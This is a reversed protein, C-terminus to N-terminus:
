KKEKFEFCGCYKCGVADMNEYSDFHRYYSHGCECIRDDGYNPNYSYTTIIEKKELYPENVKNKLILWGKKILDDISLDNYPLAYGKSRLYDVSQIYGVVRSANMHIEAVNVKYNVLKDNDDPIRMNCNITAYKFNICIHREIGYNDMNTAHVIDDQRKIEFTLNPVQHCVKAVFNIDEDSIQSLPKLELYSDIIEGLKLNSCPTNHMIIENKNKGFIVRCLVDQGWYQAFFKTKNELTNELKM